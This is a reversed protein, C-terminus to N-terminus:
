HNLANNSKKRNGAGVHHSVVVQLEVELADLKRKSRSWMFYIFVKFQDKGTSFPLIKVIPTHGNCISNVLRGRGRIFKLWKGRQNMNKVLLAGDGHNRGEVCRRCRRLNKNTGSPFITLM